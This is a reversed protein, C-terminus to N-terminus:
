EPLREGDDSEEDPPFYCQCGKGWDRPNVTREGSEVQRRFEAMPLPVSKGGSRDRMVAVDKGLYERTEQEKRAHYDFLAPRKRLLHLFQAHGSKVCFGGCNNHPFGEDYLRPPDIGDRESEKLMECKTLYPPDCLPSEARYPLLRARLGLKKKGDGEFRHKESHDIGFYCVTEEPRYNGRLYADGIERKMTKSCVDVRSNAIYRADRFLTWLDRGDAQWVLAPLVPKTAAQLAAIEEVREPGHEEPLNKARTVLVDVPDGGVGSIAAV